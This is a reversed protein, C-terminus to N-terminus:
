FDRCSLFVIMIVNKLESELMEILLQRTKEDSHYNAVGKRIIRM